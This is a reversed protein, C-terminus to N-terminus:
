GITRQGHAKLEHETQETSAASEIRERLEEIAFSVSRMQNVLLDLQATVEALRRSQLDVVETAADMNARLLWELMTMQDALADHGVLLERHRGAAFTERDAAEHRGADVREVVGGFRGDFFARLPWSLLSRFRRM